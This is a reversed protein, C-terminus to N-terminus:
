RPGRRWACAGELQEGAVDGRELVGAAVEDGVVGPRLQELEELQLDRGGVVGAEGGFFFGLGLQAGALDELLVEAFELAGALDVFFGDDGARAEAGGEIAELAHLELEAAELAQALEVLALEAAAGLARAAHEQQRDEGPQLAWCPSALAAM